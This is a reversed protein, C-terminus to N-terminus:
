IQQLVCCQACWGYLYVYAERSKILLIIYHGFVDWQGSFGFYGVRGGCSHNVVFYRKISCEIGHSSLIDGWRESLVSEMYPLLSSLSIPYLYTGGGNLLTSIEYNHARLLRLVLDCWWLIMGGLVHVYM